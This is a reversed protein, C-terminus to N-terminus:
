DEDSINGQVQRGQPPLGGSDDEGAAQNDSGDGAGDVTGDDSGDDSGPDEEIPDPDQALDASMFATLTHLQVNDLDEDLGVRVEVRYFEPVETAETVVRWYWDRDALESVGSDAGLLLSSRARSILRYETMKNNAVMQAMSRDRLYGIGDIQQYLTFLLAPLAVAVVALAVMVEVLTFGSQRPRM